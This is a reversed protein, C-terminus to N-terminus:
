ALPPLTALGAEAERGISGPQPRVDRVRHPRGIFVPNGFFRVLLIIAFEKRVYRCFLLIPFLTRIRLKM